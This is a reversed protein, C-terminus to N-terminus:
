ECPQKVSRGEGALTLCEGREWLSLTDVRLSVVFGFIRFVSHIPALM